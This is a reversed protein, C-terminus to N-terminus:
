RRAGVALSDYHDFSFQSEDPGFLYMSKASERDRAFGRVVQGKSLERQFDDRVRRRWEIHEELSRARVASIDDPVVVAGAEETISPRGGALVSEVHPSSVWWEAFIRDSPVESDFVSSVGEGYYNVEYRRVIVGLKNINFHANRSQLPDFTWIILPIGAEVARERQALKLRYGIDKHRMEEIVAAMHSHYVVNRGDLALMTHVFGVLRGAQDFAGLTPANCAKSIMYLRIPMIDIDDDKWVARELEICQNFDDVSVCERITVDAESM